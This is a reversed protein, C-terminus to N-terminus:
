DGRMPEAKPVPITVVDGVRFLSSDYREVKASCRLCKGHADPQTHGHEDCYAATGGSGPVSFSKREYLSM